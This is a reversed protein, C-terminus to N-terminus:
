VTTPDTGDTGDFLVVAPNWFPPSGIRIKFGGTRRGVGVLWFFSDSWFEVDRDMKNFFDRYISIAKLKILSIKLFYIPGFYWM